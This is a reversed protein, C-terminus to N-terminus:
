AKVVWLKLIATVNPHVRVPIEYVGLGKIPQELHIAHKEVMMGERSLTEAVDHVTISGFPKDDEGLTLKLTLSRGEIQRKLTDAEAQARQAQKLQQHKAAEVAKLQQPSAPAALGGPMLYNRAYGSKVHVVSGAAGLKEVDKLLIVDM